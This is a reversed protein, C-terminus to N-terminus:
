EISAVGAEIFAHAQEVQQPSPIRFREEGWHPSVIVHDARTKLTRIANQSM